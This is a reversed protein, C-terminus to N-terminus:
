VTATKPQTDHEHARFGGLKAQSLRAALEPDTHVREVYQLLLRKMERRDAPKVEKLHDGFASDLMADLDWYRRVADVPDGNKIHRAYNRGVQLATLSAPAA